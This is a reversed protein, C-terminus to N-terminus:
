SRARERGLLGRQRERKPGRQRVHLDEITLPTRPIKGIWKEADSFSLPGTLDVKSLYGERSQKRGRWRQEGPALARTKALRFFGCKASRSLLRYKAM